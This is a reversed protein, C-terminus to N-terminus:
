YVEVKIPIIEHWYGAGGIAETLVMSQASQKISRWAPMNKNSPESLWNAVATYIQDLRQLSQAPTWSGDDLAYLVYVHADVLFGSRRGQTTLPQWEAGASALMVVPTQTGFDAELHDYVAQALTPQLLAKLRSGLEVRVEDRGVNM